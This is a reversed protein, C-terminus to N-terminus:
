KSGGNCNCKHKKLEEIEAKLDKIAEILYGTINGYSVGLTGDSSENVLEPAIKQMEQAIVGSGEKKTDKRTFSVGRMDYVKSGDLTKINTKLRKDSYAVVDGNFTGASSSLSLSQVGGSILSLVNASARGIGTDSDNRWPIISPNTATATESNLHAKGENVNGMCNSSFEWYNVGGLAVRLDNDSREFFGTNGDGFALTPDTNQLAPARSIIVRNKFTSNSSADIKLAPTNDMYATSGGAGTGVTGAVWFHLEGTNWNSDAGSGHKKGGIAAYTSAYSGSASLGSFCILPSYTSATSSHNYLNLGLSYGIATSNSNGASSLTLIPDRGDTIWGTGNTTLLRGNNNTYKYNGSDTNSMNYFSGSAPNNVNFGGTSTTTGIGVDGTFTGGGGATISGGLYLNKFREDPDGLDFTNDNTGAATAPYIINTGFSLGAHNTATGSITLNDGGLISIKGSPVIVEGAFTADGAPASVNFATNGSTDQFYYHNSKFVLGGSGVEAIYSNSGDHYIQLDNSAGFYLKDDDGINIEGSSNINFIPVGSIDSVSFLDGSLSNTVSFLQGATGQIDLGGDKDVVMRDNNNVKWKFDGSNASLNFSYGSSDWYQQQKITGNAKNILAGSLDNRSSNVSLSYTNASISTPAADGVGANGGDQVYFKLATGGGGVLTNTGSRYIINASNAKNNIVDTRLTTTEVTSTFTATNDNALTLAVSETGGNNTNFTLSGVDDANGRVSRISAMPDAEAQSHFALCGVNDTANNGLGVIQVIGEGGSSTGKVTLITNSVGYTGNPSTGGGLHMFNGGSSTHRGVFVHMAPTASTNYGYIRFSNRSYISMYDSDSFSNWVGETLGIPNATSSDGFVAEGGQSMRIRKIQGSAYSGLETTHDSKGILNGTVTINNQATFNGTDTFTFKESLTIGTNAATNDAGGFYMNIEGRRLRMLTSKGIEISRGSDGTGYYFNQGIYTENARTFMSAQDQLALVSTVNTHYAQLADGGLALNGAFTSNGGATINLVEGMATTSANNALKLSFSGFGHASSNGDTNPGPTVLDIKMYDKNLGGYDNVTRSSNLSIVNYTSNSVINKRSRIIGDIYAASAVVLTDDTKLINADSRYLNTDTGFLIGQSPPTGSYSTSLQISKFKGIQAGSGTNLFQFVSDSKFNGTSSMTITGGVDINGSGNVTFKEAGNNRFKYSLGDPSNFNVAGGDMGIHVKQTNASREITLGSTFGSDVAQKLHINGDTITLHSGDTTISGSSNVNLIPVGSVDSVSFLDGTLSDTVSFLQGQTGQIDLVTNSGDVILGKKVKFENAM